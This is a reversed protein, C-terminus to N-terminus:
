LHCSRSFSAPWTMIEGDQPYFLGTVAYRLLCHLLEPNVFSHSSALFHAILRYSQDKAVAVATASDQPFYMNATERLLM